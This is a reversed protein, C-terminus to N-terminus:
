PQDNLTVPALALFTVDHRSFGLALGLEVTERCVMSSAGFVMGCSSFGKQPDFLDKLISYKAGKQRAKHKLVGENADWVIVLDIVIVQDDPEVVLDPKLRVGERTTFRLEERVTLALNRKQILRAVQRSVYNHREAHEPQDPGRRGRVDGNATKKKKQKTPVLWGGVCCHRRPGRPEKRVERLGLEFRDRSKVTRNRENKVRSLGREIGVARNKEYKVRSRTGCPREEMKPHVRTFPGDPWITQCEYLRQSRAPLNFM